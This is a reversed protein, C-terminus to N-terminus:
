DLGEPEPGTPAESSLSLMGVEKKDPRVPLQAIRPGTRNSLTTALSTHLCRSFSFPSPLLLDLETKSVLSRAPSAFSPSTWVGVGRAANNLGVAIEVMATVRNM